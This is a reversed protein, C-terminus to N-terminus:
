CRLSAPLTLSKFVQSLLSSSRRSQGVSQSGICSRCRQSSSKRSTVAVRVFALFCNPSGEWRPAQVSIALLEPLDGDACIRSPVDGRCSASIVATELRTCIAHRCVWAGRRGQTIVRQLRESLLATVLTTGDDLGPGPSPQLERDPTSVRAAGAIM